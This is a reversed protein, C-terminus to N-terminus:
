AGQSGFVGAAAGWGYSYRQRAKYRANGSTFANDQGFSIAVRQFFTLGKQHNTTLFWADADTLYPTVLHGDSIVNMDKLANTANNGTDNQLTSGLIRQANFANGPAVVLKKAMLARQLGREDTFGMIQILMDELSAESLDADVALRNSYTRGDTGGFLHATSLLPQGDGDTMTFNTDFGNNLVSHADIERSITMSDALARPGDTYQDYLEDEQAEETIIFGKAQTTHIFKPSIGQQRTDFSIDDGEDKESSRGFGEMQLMVEFAKRSDKIEFIKDYKSEHQAVASNFVGELGEQLLRPASGRTIPTTM